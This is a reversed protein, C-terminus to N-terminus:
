RGFKGLHSSPGVSGIDSFRLTNGDSLELLVRVDGDFSSILTGANDYFVGAGIDFVSFVVETVDGNVLFELIVGCCLQSIGDVAVNVGDALFAVNRVIHLLAEGM